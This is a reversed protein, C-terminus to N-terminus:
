GRENKRIILRAITNKKCYDAVLEGTGDPSDDDIVIIEKEGPVSQITREILPVINDYENYTALIISTKHKKM